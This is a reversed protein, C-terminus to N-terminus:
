CVEKKFLQSAVRSALISCAGIFSVQILEPQKPRKSNHAKLKKNKKVPAYSYAKSLYFDNLIKM